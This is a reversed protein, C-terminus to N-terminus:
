SSWQIHVSRLLDFPFIGKQCGSTFRFKLAYNGISEVALLEADNRSIGSGSCRMCPCAGQLDRPSLRSERGDTWRIVASEKFLDIGKIM